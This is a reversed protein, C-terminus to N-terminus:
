RLETLNPSAVKTGSRRIDPVNASLAAVSNKKKNLTDRVQNKLNEILQTLDTNDSGALESPQLLRAVAANAAAYSNLARVEEEGDGGGRSELSRLAGHADWVEGAQQEARGARDALVKDASTSCEGLGVLIGEEKQQLSCRLREFAEQMSRKGQNIVLDLDQRLVDAQQVARTNEASRERAVEILATMERSLKQYAARMNIVDHGHHAGNRQVACEACICESHCDLCYFQVPEDPHAACFKPPGKSSASPQPSRGRNSGIADSGGADQRLPILEHERMRGSRHMTAACRPCFQEGCQFCNFEAAAAQCQGCQETVAPPPRVAAVPTWPPERQAPPFLTAQETPLQPPEIRAFPVSERPPTGPRASWALRPPTSGRAFTADRPSAARQANQSLGYMVPRHAVQEVPAVSSSGTSNHWQPARECIRQAATHDVETVTGCRPCMATPDGNRPWHLQGRACDLCLRHSCTLVLSIDLPGLFCSVCSEESLYAPDAM